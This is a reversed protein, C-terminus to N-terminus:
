LQVKNYFVIYVFKYKHDDVKHRQLIKNLNLQDCTWDLTRHYIGLVHIEWKSDAVGVEQSWKTNTDMGNNTILDADCNAPSM